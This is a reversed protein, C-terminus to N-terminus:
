KGTRRASLVWTVFARFGLFVVLLAAATEVGLVARNSEYIVVPGHLWLHIFLALSLVGFWVVVSGLLFREMKKMM